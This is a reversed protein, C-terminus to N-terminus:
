ASGPRCTPAGREDILANAQAHFYPQGSAAKYSARAVFYPEGTHGHRIAQGAAVVLPQRHVRIFNFPLVVCRDGLRDKADAKLVVKTAGEADKATPCAIFLRDVGASLPAAHPAILVSAPGLRRHCQAPDRVGPGDAAARETEGQLVLRRAGRPVGGRRATRERPLPALQPRDALPAPSRGADLLGDRRVPAPSRRACSLGAALSRAPGGLAAFRGENFGGGAMCAATVAENAYAM